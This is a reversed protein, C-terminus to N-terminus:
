LFKSIKYILSAYYFTDFKYSRSLKSILIKKIYDNDTNELIIKERLSPPAKVLLSLTLSIFDILM